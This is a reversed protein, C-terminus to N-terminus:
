AAIRINDILLNFDLLVVLMTPLRYVGKSLSVWKKDITFPLPEIESVNIDIVDGIDDFVLSYMENNKNIVISFCDIIQKRDVVDIDLTKAIDIETVIHGRLNLLGVINDPALPVPTTPSCKIVDQISDIAIGFYHEGINSVLIKTQEQGDKLNM